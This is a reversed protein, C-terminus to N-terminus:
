DAVSLVDVFGLEFLLLVFLFSPESTEGDVSLFAAFVVVIGATSTGVVGVVVIRSRVRGAVVSRRRWSWRRWGM